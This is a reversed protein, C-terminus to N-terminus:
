TLACGCGLLGAGAVRLMGVIIVQLRPELMSWPKGIVESHYPMFERALLYRIGFAVALLAALGFACLSVLHM